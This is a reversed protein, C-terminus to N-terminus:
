SGCPGKGRTTGGGGWVCGCLPAPPRRSAPCRAHASLIELNRSIGRSEELNRSIGGGSEARRTVSPIELNRSIRPLRASRTTPPTGAAAPAAPRGPPPGRVCLEAAAAPGVNARGVQAGKGARAGTHPGPALQEGHAVGHQGHGGDAHVQVGAAGRGGALVSQYQPVSESTPDMRTVPLPPWLMDHLCSLCVRVSRLTTRTQREMRARVSRARVSRRGPPRRCARVAARVCVQTGVVSASVPGCNMGIRIQVRAEPDPGDEDM